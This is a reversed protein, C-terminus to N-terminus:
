RCGDNDKGGALTAFFTSVGIIGGFALWVWGPIGIASEIASFGLLALGGFAVIAPIICFYAAGTLAARFLKNM